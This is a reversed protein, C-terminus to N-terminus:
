PFIRGRMYLVAAGSIFVRDGGLRCRLVGGRASVQRAFLTDKNLRAAWYPTLVCHASGTVPDEPIGHHPAFYRSVFDCDDGPATVILGDGGLAVIAESDPVLSRVMDASALVAMPKDAAYFAEVDAGIAKKLGAPPTKREGPRAPFDLELGAEARRVALIGSKSSFRVVDGAFRLENFVTWGTALTAHGCLDVETKPTFWRLAFDTDGGEPQPVFFATESLNNEAAIKQMLADDLWSALPCVAAPNGSFVADTFADVQYLPLGQDM